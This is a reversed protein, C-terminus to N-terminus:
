YSIGSHAICQASTFELLIASYRELGPHWHGRAVAPGGLRHASEMDSAPFSGSAGVHLPAEVASRFTGASPIRGIPAALGSDRSISCDGMTAVACAIASRRDRRQGM